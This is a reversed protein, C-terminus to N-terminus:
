ARNQLLPPPSPLYAARKPAARRQWGHLSCYSVQRPLRAKSTHSPTNIQPPRLLTSKSLRYLVIMMMMWSQNTQM